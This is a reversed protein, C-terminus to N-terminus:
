QKEGKLFLNHKKLLYELQNKLELFDLDTVSPKAIIFLDFNLNFDINSNDIIERIKRKVNNRVVANGIKKGVSLAYRIHTTEFNELKYLSFYKNSRYDKKKLILEIESSKKVHYIKKM